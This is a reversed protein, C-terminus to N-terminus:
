LGFRNTFVWGSVGDIVTEATRAKEQCAKEHLLAERVEDFMLISREGAITKSLFEVYHRCHGDAQQRYNLTHNIEIVGANFNCESWTVLVISTCLIRKM